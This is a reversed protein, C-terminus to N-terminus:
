EVSTAFVCNKMVRPCGTYRSGVTTINQIPCSELGVIEQEYPKTQKDVICVRLEATAEM